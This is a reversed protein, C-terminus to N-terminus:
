SKILYIYKPTEFYTKMLKSLLAADAKKSRYKPKARLFQYNKISELVRLEEILVVSRMEIRVCYEVFKKFESTLTKPWKSHISEQTHATNNNEYMQNLLKRLKVYFKINVRKEIHNESSIVIASRVM